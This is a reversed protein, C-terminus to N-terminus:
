QSAAIPSITARSITWMGMNWGSISFERCIERAVSPFLGRRVSSLYHCICALVQRTSFHRSGRASPFLVAFSDDIHFLAGCDRERILLVILSAATRFVAGCVEIMPLSYLLLLLLKSYLVVLVKWQPVTCHSFCGNVVCCRDQGSPFLVTLSAVILM